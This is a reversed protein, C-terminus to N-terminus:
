VAGLYGAGLGHPASRANTACPVSRGPLVRTSPGRRITAILADAMLVIGRKEMDMSHRLKAMVDRNAKGMEMDTRSFLYITAFIEHDFNEGVKVGYTMGRKSPIPYRIRVYFEESHLKGSLRCRVHTTGLAEITGAYILQPREEDSTEIKLAGHLDRSVKWTEKRFLHQAHDRSFHYVYWQGLLADAPGSKPRVKGYGVKACWSLGQVVYPIASGILLFLTETWHDSFFQTM